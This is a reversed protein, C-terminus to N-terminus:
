HHQVSLHLVAKGEVKSVVSSSVAKVATVETVEVTAEVKVVM